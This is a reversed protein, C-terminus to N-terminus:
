WWHLLPIEPLIGLTAANAQIEASAFNSRVKMGPRAFPGEGHRVQPRRALVRHRMLEALRDLFRHRSKGAACDV